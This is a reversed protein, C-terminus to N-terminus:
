RSGGSDPSGACRLGLSTLVSRLEAVPDDPGDARRWAVHGDPRVLVAGTRSIGYATHLDAGADHLAGSGIRLARLWDADGTVSRAAATWSWGDAGALLTLARDFLDLTNGRDAGFGLWVAPARHGPRATPQYRAPSFPPEPTGDPVVAGAAYAFGLDQGLASIHDKQAAMLEDILDGDAAVLAERIEAFRKGNGLSWALNSEAVPRRESEYTDLLRPEAAGGLVFALKWVLNHVDQIGSNMGMGGTPPLVHAADGALFVRGDRYSDANLASVRYTAIDELAVDLGPDGVAARIAAVAQERTPDAPRQESPPLAILTVWRRRGDVSAIQVHRGTDAGTVFQICPRQGALRDLDGYWYFSQWWSVVPRGQLGIGLARRIGSAVGDAAILYDARMERGDRTAVRVSEPTQSVEAVPTGFRLDILPQARALGLLAQHVADQAVRCSTTPSGAFARPELEPTRALEKGALTDCYIFRLADPPLAHARLQPELGWQHFLEMTRVRVGRAKPHQSLGQGQEFVTCRIGFRALLIAASLGVPGAGVVVAPTAGTGTM